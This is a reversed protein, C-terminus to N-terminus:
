SASRVRRLGFQLEAALSEVQRRDLTIACAKLGGRPGSTRITLTLPGRGGPWIGHLTTRGIEFHLEGTMRSSLRPLEALRAAFARADQEDLVIQQLSLKGRRGRQSIQACLREYLCKRAPNGSLNRRLRLIGQARRM